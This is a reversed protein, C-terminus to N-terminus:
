PILGYDRHFLNCDCLGLAGAKREVVLVKRHLPVEDVVTRDMCLRDCTCVHADLICPSKTCTVWANHYGDEVESDVVDMGVELIREPCIFALGSSVALVVVAVSEDVIDVSEVEVLALCLVVSSHLREVRDVTRLAASVSGM